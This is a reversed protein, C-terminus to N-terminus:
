RKLSRAWPITHRLTHSQQWIGATSRWPAGAIQAGTCHPEEHRCPPAPLDLRLTDCDSLPALLDLDYHGTLWFHFICNKQIVANIIVTSILWHSHIIWVSCICWVNMYLVNHANCFRIEEIEFYYENVKLRNSCELQQLYLGPVIVLIPTDTSTTNKHMNIFNEKTSWVSSFSSRVVMKESNSFESM